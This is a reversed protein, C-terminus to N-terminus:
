IAADLGTILEPVNSARAAQGGVELTFVTSGRSWVALFIRTENHCCPDPEHEFVTGGAPIEVDANTAADGIVEDAHMRLWQLYREAGGATEFTLVRALVRRRGGQNRSFLRQTGAVFGADKLLSGLEAFDIAEVALTAADLEVPEAASGPLATAPIPELRPPESGCASAVLGALLTLAAIRRGVTARGLFHRVDLTRRM